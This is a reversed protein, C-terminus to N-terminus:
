KMFFIFNILENNTGAATLKTLPLYVRLFVHLPYHEVKGECEGCLNFEDCNVCKYRIGVIPKKGCGDCSVNVHSINKWDNVKETITETSKYLVPLLPPYDEKPAVPPQPLSTSPYLPLPKAIKIFLHLENHKVKDRDAECQECLDFNSCNVCKFRHDTVLSGRIM